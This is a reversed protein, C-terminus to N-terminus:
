KKKRSEFDAVIAAVLDLRAMALAIHLRVAFHEVKQVAFARRREQHLAVRALGPPRIKVTARVLLNRAIISGLAARAARDLELARDLARRKVLNHGLTILLGFHALRLALLLNLLGLELGLRLLRGLLLGIHLLIRSRRKRGFDRFGLRGLRLLRALHESLHEVTRITSYFPAEKKQQQM